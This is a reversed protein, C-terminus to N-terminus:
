RCAREARTVAQKLGMGAVRPSFCREGALTGGIDHGITACIQGAPINENLAFQVFGHLDKLLQVLEIELETKPEIM